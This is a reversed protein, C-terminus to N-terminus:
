IKLEMSLRLAGDFKHAFCFDVIDDYIKKKSSNIFTKVMGTKTEELHVIHGGSATKIKELKIM